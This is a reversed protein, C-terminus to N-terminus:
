KHARGVFFLDLKILKLYILLFSFVITIDDLFSASKNNTVQCMVDRPTDKLAMRTTGPRCGSKNTVDGEVGSEEVM